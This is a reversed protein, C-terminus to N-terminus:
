RGAAVKLAGEIDRVIEPCASKAIQLLAIVQPEDCTISYGEFLVGDISHDIRSAREIASYATSDTSIQSLLKEYHRPALKIVVEM